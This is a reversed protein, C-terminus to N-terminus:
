CFLLSSFKFINLIDFYYEDWQKETLTRKIIGEAPSKHKKKGKKTFPSPFNIGMKGGISSM